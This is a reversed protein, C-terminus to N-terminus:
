CLQSKNEEEEIKLLVTIIQVEIITVMIIVEIILNRIM